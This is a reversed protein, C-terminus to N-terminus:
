ALPTAERQEAQEMGSQMYEMLAVVGQGAATLGMASGAGVAGYLGVRAGRSEALAQNLRLEQMGIREAMGPGELQAQAGAVGRRQADNLAKVRSILEEPQVTSPDIGEGMVQRIFTWDDHGPDVAPRPGIGGHEAAGRNLISAIYASQSDAGRASLEQTRNAIRAAQAEAIKAAIPNSQSGPGPSQLGARVAAAARIREDLNRLQRLMRERDTPLVVM